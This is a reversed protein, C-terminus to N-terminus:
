QISLTGISPQKILKKKSAQYTSNTDDVEVFKRSKLNKAANLAKSGKLALTISRTSSHNHTQRKPSTSDSMLISDNAKEGFIGDKLLDSEMTYENIADLVM